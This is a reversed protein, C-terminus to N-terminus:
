SSRLSIIWEKRNGRRKEIYNSLRNILRSTRPETLGLQQSIQKINAEKTKMLYYLIRVAQVRKGRDKIFNSLELEMDPILVDESIAESVDKSKIPLDGDYTLYREVVLTLYRLFRRFIGRSLRGLLLLAEDTIVECNPLKKHFITIFEEPKLPKIEIPLMKGFFFHGTFIEKQIAIVMNPVNGVQKSRERIEQLEDLASYMQNRNKSTYDPLDIFITHCSFLYDEIWEDKILKIRWRKFIKTPDQQARNWIQEAKQSSVGRVIEIQSKYEETLRRHLDGHEGILIDKWDKTWKIYVFKEDPNKKKMIEMVKLLASTKGTGQLGILAILQDSNYESIRWGLLNVSKTPYYYDDEYRDEGMLYATWNLIDELGTEDRTEKEPSEKSLLFKNDEKHILWPKCLLKFLSDKDWSM